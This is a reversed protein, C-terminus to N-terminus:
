DPRKLDGASLERLVQALSLSWHPLRFGFTHAFKSTDLRSNLPRRAPAPYESTSVAIIEPLNVMGTMRLYERIANALDFWTTEGGGTCHYTGSRGPSIIRDGGSRLVHLIANALDAAATPAGHQDAVVRLPTSRMALLRLMTRVFNKGTSSYVWSTRLVVHPLGTREAVDVIAQEGALKSAGYVNLPGTPDTERWPRTGSGDFVYDTSLHVLMAGTAAAEEALVRPAIANVAFATERDTEAADVTTYAACSIIWRPQAARVASRISAPDLLDLQARGPAAIALPVAGALCKVLESGVQGSAGTILVTGAHDGSM